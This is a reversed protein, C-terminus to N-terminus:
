SLRCNRISWLAEDILQRQARNLKLTWQRGHYVIHAALAYLRWRLTIARRSQWATPLLGRLLALLNYALACLKFYAANADFDGCPLKAGGFDSRLEKIRNESAEGRQNYFHVVKHEDWNAQLDLNTALARYVYKGKRASEDEQDVFLNPLLEPQPDPEQQEILQRQVVLYFAKPTDGMVHLTHAVQETESASGDRQNLPEWDCPKIASMSEKLASDMKARIVYRIDNSECYNIVGAQYTAADARLHAVSVGAPLAAECQKIFELNEKNPPVNGARFDVEVVQEIEAIHGVMPTYGRSGKYNFQTDQKSCEIVTADIDLTVRRRHHLGASLLHKNIEVLAQMSQSGDGIRRLWNGLTKAEPVNEFGLLKMLGSEHHLHRVDELCKAGDHKMLMFTSFLVSPRYGRNSGPAPMFRDVLENLGLRKSLEALVVLGARSTLNRNSDATKYSLINM